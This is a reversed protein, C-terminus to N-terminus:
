VIRWARINLAAAEASSVIDGGNAHVTVIDGALLRLSAAVIARANPRDTGKVALSGNVFVQLDAAAASVHAAFNVDMFLDVDATFTTRTNGPDDAVTVLGTDGVETVNSLNFEIELNRNTLTSGAALHSFVVVETTSSGISNRAVRAM